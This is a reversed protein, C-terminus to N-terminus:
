RYRGPTNPFRAKLAARVRDEEEFATREISNSRDQCLGCEAMQRAYDCKFKDTGWVRYQHVHMMEHAMLAALPILQQPRLGSTRYVPHLFVTDRDPAVGAGHGFECFAINVGSFESEPVLQNDVLLKKAADIVTKDSTSQAISQFNCRTSITQLAIQNPITCVLTAAKEFQERPTLPVTPIPIGIICSTKKFTECKLNCTPEIFDPLPWIGSVRCQDGCSTQCDEAQAAM